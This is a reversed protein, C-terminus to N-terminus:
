FNCRSSKRVHSVMWMVGSVYFRIKRKNASSDACKLINLTEPICFHKLPISIAFFFDKPGSKKYLLLHNLFCVSNEIWCSSSPDHSRPDLKPKKKIIEM